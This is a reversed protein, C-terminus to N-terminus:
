LRLMNPFIKPGNHLHWEIPLKNSISPSRNGQLLITCLKKPLSFTYYVEEHPMENLDVNLTKM